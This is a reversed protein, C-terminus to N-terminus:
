QRYDAPISGMPAEQSDLYENLEVLKDVIGRFTSSAVMLTNFHEHNKILKLCTNLMSTLYRNGLNYETYITLACDLSDAIDVVEGELDLKATLALHKQWDLDTGEYLLDLKSKAIREFEEHAQRDFHKVTWPIDSILTEEVDHYIAKSITTEIDLLDVQNDVDYPHFLANHKEAWSNYEKAIVHALISTYYSHVAVSYKQVLPYLSFRQVNSLRRLNMIVEASSM